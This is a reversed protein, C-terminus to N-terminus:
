KSLTGGAVSKYIELISRMWHTSKPPIIKVKEVPVKYLRYVEDRMWESKVVLKATEYMGLWEISKIAMNFPSNAGHSRHEELSEVSYVFPVGLAKKLTVAAPIFHWDHVDILDLQKDINYYINTAAREVEQNLTLVWTLVGIHTRVPNTVRYVKVGESEEYQGTLYDHYTVVFAKVNNKVLQIALERVHDALQGVIRPPYEWSFITVQM